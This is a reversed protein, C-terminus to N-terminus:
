LEITTLRNYNIISFAINQCHEVTRKVNQLISFLTITEQLDQKCNVLYGMLFSTTDLIIKECIAVRSVIVEAQLPDAADFAQLALELIKNSSHFPEAINTQNLLQSSITGTLIDNAIKEAMDGIIELQGTIKLAFVAFPINVTQSGQISLYYKCDSEIFQQSGNVREEILIVERALDKDSNILATLAKEQQSLVLAWMEKVEDNLSKLYPM